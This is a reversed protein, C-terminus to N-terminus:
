VQNPDSPFLFLKERRAQCFITIQGDPLGDAFNACARTVALQILQQCDDQDQLEQDVTSILFLRSLLFRVM